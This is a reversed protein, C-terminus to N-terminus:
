LIDLNRYVDKRPAIHLIYIKRNEADILFIARYDGLRLRWLDSRDKVRLKRIGSMRKGHAFDDLKYFKALLSKQTKEPLKAFASAAKPRLKVEFDM